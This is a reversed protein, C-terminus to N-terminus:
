RMYRQNHHKPQKHRAPFNTYGYKVPRIKMVKGTDPKAISGVVMPDIMSEPSPNERPTPIAIVNLSIETNELVYSYSVQFRTSSLARGTNKGKDAVQQPKSKASKGSALHSFPWAKEFQAITLGSANVDIDIRTGRVRYPCRQKNCNLHSSFQWLSYSKWHGLPFVGRIDDKYRAYWLPLRSLLPFEGRRAAIKKATSHNTYLVPYRGLRKHIQKAFIEADAFSIWKGPDDHEIDLAILEDPQPQAFELFHNAQAVPNGPRGLHYAGWKLGMSKAATKRTHYLERKLWYNQFTKRCLTKKAKNKMPCNYAPPLGDSSKGVFARIQRDQVVKAWDIGNREYADLVLAQDSQKWPRNFEGSHVSASVLFAFVAALLSFLRFWGAVSPPSFLSFDDIYRITNLM